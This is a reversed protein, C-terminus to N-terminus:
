RTQAARTAFSVIEQAVVAAGDARPRAAPPPQRLLADIAPQWRGAALDDPPLFRCRLVRPMEDVLLGYERFGTRLTYLLATGNSACESAIGYGPKSVVIDAAAILDKYQLRHADLAAFSSDVLTFRDARALADRPLDLGFRDFSAVIAPRDDPIGLRRRTDARDATSTRAILPVDVTVSRMADFGGHFPLRLARTAMGYAGRIAPLVDPADRHMADYGAYIWDWTFNGLALSRVGARAAAAFALPPIDGVVVDPRLATLVRAEDDVRREFTAYFRQAERVTAAEDVTVDDLEVVGADVVAPQLDIGPPATRDFIWAPASTRVVIRADPARALLAHLTEIDRTAHGLGHGSIYFAVVM